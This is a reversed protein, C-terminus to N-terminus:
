NRKCGHQSSFTNDHHEWILEFILFWLAYIEVKLTTTAKEEEISPVCTYRYTCTPHNELYATEKGHFKGQTLRHIICYIVKRAYLLQLLVFNNMVNM